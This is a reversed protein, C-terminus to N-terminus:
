PSERQTHNEYQSREGPRCDSHFIEAFISTKEDANRQIAAINENGEIHGFFPDEGTEGFYRSFRVLDDTGLTQGPFVLVKNELWHARLEAVLDAPLEQALDIGTVIAGCVAGTPKVNLTM